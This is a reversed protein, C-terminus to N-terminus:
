NRHKANLDGALIYSNQGDHLKLEKFILDLDRKFNTRNNGAAHACIVFLNRNEKLMFELITCEIINLNRACTLSIKKFKFTKWIIITTGGGRKNDHRDNRVINYDKFSLKHKNMLKTEGVLIFDPDHDGILTTMSIRKEHSVLSNANIAIIKLNVPIITNNSLNSM